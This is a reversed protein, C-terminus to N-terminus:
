TLCRVRVARLSGCTTRSRSAARKPAAARDDTGSLGQLVDLMPGDEDELLRAAVHVVYDPSIVVLDQDFARHHISCLSLGNPVEPTGTPEPDGVIHAADLLRVEKLRCIACQDRYAPLVLGRFRGQHMRVKVERNAYRREIPDLLVPEQEDLPGRMAGKSVQVCRHVPDDATVFCPYFPEYFDPRPSFFYVLPTGLGAAARLARNDAQNVDGARYAYSFSGDAAETDDYPPDHSTQIALAAPGRQAAARFIGKQRNLFPVRRGRFPFGERLVARYSLEDGYRAQLVALRAFCAARIDEDREV